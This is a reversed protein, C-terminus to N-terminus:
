PEAWDVYRERCQFSPANQVRWWMFCWPILFMERVGRWHNHHRSGAAWMSPVDWHLSRPSPSLPTWEGEDEARSGARERNPGISMGNEASFLPLMRSVGGCSVGPFSSCKGCEAGTTTIDPDRRGCVQCTGIYHGLHHLCHHLGMVLGEHERLLEAHRASSLLGARCIRLLVSIRPVPM